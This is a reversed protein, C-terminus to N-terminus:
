TKEGLSKDCGQRARAAPFFSPSKDRTGGNGFCVPSHFIFERSPFTLHSATRSVKSTQCSVIVGPGGGGRRAGPHPIKLKTGHAAFLGGHRRARGAKIQELCFRACGEDHHRIDPCLWHFALGARGAAGIWLIM